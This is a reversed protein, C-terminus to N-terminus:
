AKPKQFVVAAVVAVAAVLLGYALLASWSAMSAIVDMSAQLSGTAASEPPHQSRYVCLGLVGFVAAYTALTVLSGGQGRPTMTWATSLVPDRREEASWDEGDAMARFHHSGRLATSVLLIAIGALLWPFIIILQQVSLIGRAWTPLAADMVAELDKVLATLAGEADSVEQAKRESKAELEDAIEQANESATHLLSDLESGIAEATDDKRDTTLWWATSSYEELWEAIADDIEGPIEALPHDDDFRASAARLPAVIDARLEEAIDSLAKNSHSRPESVRGEKFDAKLVAIEDTWPQQAIRKSVGDLQQQLEAIKDLEVKLRGIETKQTKIKAQADASEIHFPEIVTLLVVLAFISGGVGIRRVSTEGAKWLETHRQLKRADDM